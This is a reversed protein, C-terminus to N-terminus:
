ASLREPVTKGWRKEAGILRGLGPPHLRRAANYCTRCNRGRDRKHITNEPTFEHGRLCHTVDAYARRTNEASTVAELHDPNICRKVRCLHDITLGDPIPGTLAEFALRHVLQSRGGLWYTGYGRSTVSATWIWCTDTMQVKAWFRQPLATNM